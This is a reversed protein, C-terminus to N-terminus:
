SKSSKRSGVEVGRLSSGGQYFQGLTGDGLVSSSQVQRCERHRDDLGTYVPSSKQQISSNM